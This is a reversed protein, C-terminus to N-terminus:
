SERSGKENVGKTKYIPQRLQKIDERIEDLIQKITPTSKTHGL